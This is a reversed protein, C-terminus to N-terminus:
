RSDRKSKPAPQNKKVRIEGGDREYIDPHTSLERERIARAREYLREAAREKKHATYLDAVQDLRQAVDIHWDGRVQEKLALAREASREAEEFKGAKEESDAKRSLRRSEELAEWKQRETRLAARKRSDDKPSDESIAVPAVAILLCLGIIGVLM